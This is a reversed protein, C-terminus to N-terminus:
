DFKLVTPKINLQRRQPVVYPQPAPMVAHEPSNTPTISIIKREVVHTKNVDACHYIMNDGSLYLRHVKKCSCNVSLTSPKPDIVFDDIHNDIFRQLKRDLHAPYTNESITTFSM